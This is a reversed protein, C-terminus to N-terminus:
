YVCDLVFCVVWYWYLVRSFGVLNLVCAVVGICLLCWVGFCVLVFWCLWRLWVLWVVCFCVFWVLCCVLYLMGCWWGVFCACMLCVSFPLVACLTVFGFGVVCLLVFVVCCRLVVDHCLCLLCM